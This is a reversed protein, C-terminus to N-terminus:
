KRFDILSLSVQSKQQIGAFVQTRGQLQIEDNIANGVPQHIDNRVRAQGNNLTLVVVFCGQPTIVAFGANLVLVIRHDIDFNRIMRFQGFGNVPAFRCYGIVRVAANEGAIYCIFQLGGFRRGEQRNRQEGFFRGNPEDDYVFKTEAPGEAVFFGSHTM